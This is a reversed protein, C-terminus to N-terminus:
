KRKKYNDFDEKDRIYDGESFAKDCLGLLIADTSFSVSLWNLPPVFLGKSPSDLNFYLLDGNLTTVTIKLIGFLSVIVQSEQHHAHNGRTEGKKVKSIWFCRQIGTPFLEANDWFRLDGSESSQGPLNILYPRKEKIPEKM